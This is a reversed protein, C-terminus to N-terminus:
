ARDAFYDDVGGSYRSDVSDDAAEIADACQRRILEHRESACAHHNTCFGIEGEEATFVLVPDVFRRFLEEILEATGVLSLDTNM